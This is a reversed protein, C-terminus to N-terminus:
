LVLRASPRRSPRGGGSSASQLRWGPIKLLSYPPQITASFVGGDSEGTNTMGKQHIAGEYGAAELQSVAYSAHDVRCIGQECFTCDGFNTQRPCRQLEQLSVLDPPAGSGGDAGGFGGATIHAICAELGSRDSAGSCESDSAGAAQVNWSLVTFDNASDARGDAAAAWQRWAGSGPECFPPATSVAPLAAPSRPPLAAAPRARSRQPHGRLCASVRCDCGIAEGHHFRCTARYRCAGLFRCAKPLALQPAVAM